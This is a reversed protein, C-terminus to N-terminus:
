SSQVFTLRSGCRDRVGFQRSGWPMTRIPEEPDIVGKPELEAYLDDVGTAEICRVVAGAADLKVTSANV